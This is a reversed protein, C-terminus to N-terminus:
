RFVRMMYRDSLRPGFRQKLWFLATPAIHKVFKNTILPCDVPALFSRDVNKEKTSECLIHVRELGTITTTSIFVFAEQYTKKIEGATAVAIGAEGVSAAHIWIRITGGHPINSPTKFRNLIEPRGCLALVFGVPFSLIVILFTTITYLFLIV